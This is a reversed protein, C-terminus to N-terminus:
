APEAGADLCPGRLEAVLGHPERPRFTLAFGHRAAVDRAIALGLGRSGGTVLATRGHLNIRGARRRAAAFAAAGAIVTVTTRLVAKATM